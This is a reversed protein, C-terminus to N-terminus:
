LPVICQIKITDCSENMYEINKEYAVLLHINYYTSLGHLSFLNSANITLDRLIERTGVESIRMEKFCNQNM